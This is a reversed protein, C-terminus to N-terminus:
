FEYEQTDLVEPKDLCDVCITGSAIAQKAGVWGSWYYHSTSAADKLDIADNWGDIADCYAQNDEWTGGLLSSHKTWNM